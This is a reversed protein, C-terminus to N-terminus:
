GAKMMITCCKLLWKSKSFNQSGESKSQCSKSKQREGMMVCGYIWVVMYGRNKYPEKDGAKTGLGKQRALKSMWVASSFPSALSTGLGVRPVLAVKQCFESMGLSRSSCKSSQFHPDSIPILSYCESSGIISNHIFKADSARPTLAGPITREAAWCGPNRRMVMSVCDVGGMRKLSCRSELGCCM